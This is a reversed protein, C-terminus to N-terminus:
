NLFRLRTAVGYGIIGGILGIVLDSVTDLAFREDVVSIGSAYEFCEWVLAVLAVVALTGGFQRLSRFPPVRLDAAAFVGLAVVAGGFLHMPMDFWEHRWYLYFRLALTHLVALVALAMLFFRLTLTM